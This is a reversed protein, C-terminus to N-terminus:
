LVLKSLKAVQEKLEKIKAKEEYYKEKKKKNIEERNAEVYKLSNVRKRELVADLEGKQKKLHYQLRQYKRMYVKMMDYAERVMEETIIEPLDDKTM